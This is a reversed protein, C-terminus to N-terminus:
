TLEKGMGQRITFKLFMKAISVRFFQLFLEVRHVIFLFCSFMGTPHTVGAKRTRPPRGLRGGGLHLLGEPHLGGEGQICVRRYASRGAGHVSLHLFM